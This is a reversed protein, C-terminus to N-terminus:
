HPHKTLSTSPRHTMGMILGLLILSIGDSESAETSMSVWVRDEPQTLSPVHVLHLSPPLDFGHKFIPSAICDTKDFNYSPSYESFLYLVM